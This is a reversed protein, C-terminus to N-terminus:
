YNCQSDPNSDDYKNKKRCNESKTLLQMNTEVHLGSVTEGQLPIIHDVTYLIGTERTLQKAKAYFQRIEKKNAWPPTQQKVSGERLRRHVAIKEPNDQLYKSNYNKVWERNAARWRLGRELIKQPNELYTKRMSKRVIELVKEKNRSKWNYTQIFLCPKCTRRKPYFLLDDLEKNCKSCIKM